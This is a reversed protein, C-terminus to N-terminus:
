SSEEGADSSTDKSTEQNLFDKVTSHNYLGQEMLQLALPNRSGVTKKIKARKNQFWIKIQSETLGLEDALNKRRTETLYRCDDFERKLRQLQDNTFATRPRKEDQAKNRKPKRSRPGSSPRDSYRTCFVWAPWLPNQGKEKSDTKDSNNDKQKKTRLDSSNDKEKTPINAVNHRHSAQNNESQGSVNNTKTTNPKHSSKMEALSRPEADANPLKINSNSMSLKLHHSQKQSASQPKQSGTLHNQVTWNILKSIDGQMTRESKQPVVKPVFCYNRPDVFDRIFSPSTQSLHPFTRPFHPKASGHIAPNVLPYQGGMYMEVSKTPASFLRHPFLLHKRGYYLTEPDIEQASDWNKQSSVPSSSSFPSSPSSRSSSSSCPSSMSESRTKTSLDVATFASPSVPCSIDQMSSSDHLFKSDNHLSTSTGFDPRLIADISFNTKKESSKVKVKVGDGCIDTKLVMPTTENSVSDIGVRCIDGSKFLSGPHTIDHPAIAETNTSLNLPSSPPSGQPTDAEIDIFGSSPTSSRSEFDDREDEDNGDDCEDREHYDKSGLSNYSTKLALLPSNVMSCAKDTIAERPLNHAVNLSFSNQPSLQKSITNKVSKANDTSNLDTDLIDDISQYLKQRSQELMQNLDISRKQLISNQLMQKLCLEKLDLSRRRFESDCISESKNDQHVYTQTNPEAPEDKCSNASSHKKYIESPDMRLHKFPSLAGIYNNVDTIAARKLPSRNKTRREPDQYPTIVGFGSSILHNDLCVTKMTPMPFSTEMQNILCVTEM